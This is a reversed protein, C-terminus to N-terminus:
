GASDVLAQVAPGHLAVVEEVSASALPELRVVWRALGLGLLSSAVLAAAADPGGEHGRRAALRPLVISRVVAAVPSATGAVATRAVAAFAEPHADWTSVFTHVIRAGLEADPGGLATALREAPDVPLDLTAVLLGEKDGFHHAILSPDVGAARAIARGSTADFGREAFLRRAAEVLATRGDVASAASPRGRRRRPPTGAGGAPQADDASM